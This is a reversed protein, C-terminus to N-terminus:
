HKQDLEFGNKGPMGIDSVLLDFRDRKLWALAEDADGALTVHAGYRELVFLLLERTDREDDVVLVRIDQLASDTRNRVEPVPTMSSRVPTEAAPLAVTFTTGLGKGASEVNVTGGHLDVLRHVIALGLGLGGHVRSPNMDAQQFREFVRPLFEPTIGEGTDSVVIRVKSNNRNVALKVRGGPPTFKIANSLLNWVVQVLRAQDGNVLFGSANMEREITLRKANAVPRLTEFASDLVSNIDLLKKDLRLKGGIIRSVDLLDNILHTQMAVNREIVEIAKLRTEKGLGDDRLLHTWGLIPTLPTRLEHSVTALFEDKARNARELEATRERVRAELEENAHLLAQEANKRAGIEHELQEPTRMALAVPTIKFLAAVTAWSAAATFFKVVGAVPYIPWWFIVADLFHTTGCLLIFAGFLLFVSRFPLTKRKLIFYILIFPIASIHAVLNGFGIRNDALRDRSQQDLRLRM